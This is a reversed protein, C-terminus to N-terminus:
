SIGPGETKSSSDANSQILKEVAGRVAQFPTISIHTANNITRFEEDDTSAIRVHAEYGVIQAARRGFWWAKDEHIPKLSVLRVLGDTGRLVATAMDDSSM